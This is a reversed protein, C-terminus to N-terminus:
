RRRGTSTPTPQQQQNMAFAQIDEEGLERTKEVEAERAVLVRVQGQALPKSYTKILWIKGTFRNIKYAADVPGSPPTITYVGAIIFALVLSLVAGGCAWFIKEKLAQDM